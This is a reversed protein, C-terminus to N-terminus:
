HCFLLPLLSAPSLLPVEDVVFCCVFLCNFSNIGLGILMMLHSTTLSIILSIIILVQQCRGCCVLKEQPTIPLDLPAHSLPARVGMNHHQVHQPHQQPHHHPHTRMSLLERRHEEIEREVEGVQERMQRALAPHPTQHQQIMMM